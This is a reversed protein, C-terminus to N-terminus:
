SRACGAVVNNALIREVLTPLDDPSHAVATPQAALLRTADHNGWLVAISRVGAAHAMFIDYDTDGIVVASDVPSGTEAIAQNVMAPAPKSPADDATQTTIFRHTLNHRELIRTLGRRSKGTVIGLLTDATDIADLAEATRDFLPESDAAASDRYAIRYAGVIAEADSLQKESILHSVALPLSLGIINRIQRESPPQAGVARFAATMTAVVVAASDVLTGDCDFLVLRHTM